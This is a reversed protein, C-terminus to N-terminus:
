RGIHKAQQNSRHLALRLTLTNVDMWLAELYKQELGFDGRGRLRVGPLQKEFIHM